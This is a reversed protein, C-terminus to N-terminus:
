LNLRLVVIDHLTAPLPMTGRASLRDVQTNAMFYISGDVLTATTPVEFIPNYSELVEAREIQDMNSNLYYRMVRGPHLDPNQIGVLSGKYFYVGDLGADSIRRPKSLMKVRKSAIDVRVVGLWGAVFLLKDDTSVAIGNAQPVTNAPLFPEIGDHDPSIRFVEGTGTNTVFAVGRSTLAVDNLFGESGTPILHKYLLAGTKPDYQFVGYQADSSYSMVNEGAASGPVSSDSVVWLFRRKADVKMGLTQGLGDQRPEKFDRAVGDEGVVVIKRKSVSSIYFNRGISDYAIGEPALDREKLVFTTTSRIVPPNEKEIKALLARFAPDNEMSRFTRGAPPQPDLGAHALSMEEFLKFAKTKDGITAYDLALSFLAAPDGPSDLLIKKLDAMEQAVQPPIDTEQAAHNGEGTIVGLHSSLLLALLGHLFIILCMLRM